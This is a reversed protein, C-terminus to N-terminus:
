RIVQGDIIDPDDDDFDAETLRPADMVGRPNKIAMLGKWGGSRGTMNPCYVYAWQREDPFQDWWPSERLTEFASGAEEWIRRNLPEQRDTEVADPSPKKIFIAESQLLDQPMQRMQQGIYVIHWDLHRAQNMAIRAVRRGADMGHGGILIGTEDVLIVRGRLQDMEWESFPRIKRRKKKPKTTGDPLTVTEPEDDFDDNPDPDLTAKLRQIRNTFTSIGVPRFQPLSDEPYMGVTEVLYHHQQSWVQALRVALTTKGQGKPGFITWAGWRQRILWRVFHQFPPEGTIDRFDGEVAFPRKGTLLGYAELAGETARRSAQGLGPAVLDVGDWIGESLLYDRAATDGDTGWRRAAEFVRVANPAGALLRALGALDM